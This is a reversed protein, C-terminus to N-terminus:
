KKRRKNELIQQKAIRINQLPSQKGPCLYSCVGCEMCDLIHYKEAKELDGAAAFKSLYLPMLHMPCHDVCKGCRICPSDQDYGIEVESLALLCSTTKIVPVDLSYQAMGMMPGGMILRKPEKSFGGTQEVLYSFPVGIPVALNCPTQYCDGSMTIIRECLPMGTAFARYIATATDVNLVIAGADAPLGGSPVQRRTVAYILQKEAGQPYKTKLPVIHINADKIEEMKSIADPKNAEIGIWGESLGLIKMAIKLGGLVEEPSELMRRHDSTLYPECEAGNVIVHTITKDKPPSLKVHTPFGAGGMGVIGANRVVSLMEERTMQEPNKPCVEPFVENQFDNEVFISTVMAGSPHLHPKIEKVTGSISAHIPASVYADSDAIKQGALVRDGPKILVELPAGIHQQLPYIHIPAGPIKKIPIQNTITKHDDIHLGGKFTRLMM